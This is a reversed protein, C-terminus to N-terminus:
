PPSVYFLGWIDSFIFKGPTHPKFIVGAVTYGSIHVLFAPLNGAKKIKCLSKKRAAASKQAYPKARKRGGDEPEGKHRESKCSDETRRGRSGRGAEMGM